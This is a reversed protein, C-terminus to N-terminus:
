QSLPDNDKVLAFVEQLNQTNELSYLVVNQPNALCFGTYAVSIQCIIAGKHM